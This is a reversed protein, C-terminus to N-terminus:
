AAESGNVEGAEGHEAYRRLFVFVGPAALCGPTMLDSFDDPVTIAFEM